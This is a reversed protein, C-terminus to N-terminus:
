YILSKKNMWDQKFDTQLSHFPHGKRYDMHVHLIDDILGLTIFLWKYKDDHHRQIKVKVNVLLLKENLLTIACDQSVKLM